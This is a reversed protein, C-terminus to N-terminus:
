EKNEELYKITFQIAEFSVKGRESAILNELSRGLMISLKKLKTGM